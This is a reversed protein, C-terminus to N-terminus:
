PTSVTYEPVGPASSVCDVHFEGKKRARRLARLGQGGFTYQRHTVFVDASDGRVREIHLTWDHSDERAAQAPSREYRLTAADGAALGQRGAFPCSTVIPADSSSITELVTAAIRRHDIGRLTVRFQGDLFTAVEDSNVCANGENPQRDENAHDIEGVDVEDCRSAEAKALESKYGIGAFGCLAIGVAAIVVSLPASSIEAVGQVKLTPSVGKGIGRIAFGIGVLVFVVGIGAVVIWFLMVDPNREAVASVASLPLLRV